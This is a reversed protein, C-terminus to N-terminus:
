WPKDHVRVSLSERRVQTGEASLVYLMDDLLDDAHSDVLLMSVLRSALEISCVCESETPVVSLRRREWALEIRVRQGSESRWDGDSLTFTRADDEGSVALRLFNSGRSLLMADLVTGDQYTIKM